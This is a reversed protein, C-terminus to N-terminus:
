RLRKLRARAELWRRRASSPDALVHQKVSEATDCAGISFRPQLWSGWRGPMRESTHVAGYGLRALDSLSRRDYMGLPVAAEDVQNGIVASIRERAEIFERERDPSTLRRWPRHDMGHSGITMGRRALERIGDEDLSGPAGIRGAIVFFTATLDRELLEALAVDLDSVNGDDFTIRVDDRGGLVDLISRFTNGAIWFRNEGPELPRRPEGVGHFCIGHVAGARVELQTHQENLTTAFRRSLRVDRIRPTSHV